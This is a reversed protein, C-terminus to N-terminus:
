PRRDRCDRVLPALAQIVDARLPGVSVWTGTTLKFDEAVRGDFLFGLSPDAADVFKLADGLKYFGEEDFAAKTLDPQKWYGPTINPGRVRAELKGANPVLKLEVGPLPLGVMGSRTCKNTSAICGPATETSGLGTVMRVRHGTEM